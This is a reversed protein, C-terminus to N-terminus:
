GYTFRENEYYYFYIKNRFNTHATHVNARTTHTHIHTHINRFAFQIMDCYKLRQFYM